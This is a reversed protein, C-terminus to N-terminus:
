HYSVTHHIQIYRSGFVCPNVSIRPSKRGFILTTEFQWVWTRYIKLKPTDIFAEHKKCTPCGWWGEFFTTEWFSFVHSSFCSTWKCDNTRTRRRRRMMMMMRMMRM